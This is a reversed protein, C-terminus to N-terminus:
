KISKAPAKMKIDDEEDGAQKYYDAPFGNLQRWVEYWIPVEKLLVISQAGSGVRLATPWPKKDEEPKVLLRYMGNKSIFNDIAVVRGSFTGFSTNPWGSFVVAPWGDFQVRVDGGIEMLPLDIPRVYMEVALDFNSPMITVIETGAKIIEGIGSRVAKTIFGSQPAKIFYMGQREAYNGLLNNLKAVEAEASANSSVAEFIESRSKALKDAFSAKTNELELIASELEIRANFLDNQLSQTRGRANELVLRKSELDTLSLLGSRHLSDARTYRLEAIAQNKKVVELDISDNTVLLKLQRIKLKLQDLKIDRLSELAAVQSKFATVKQDYAEAGAIKAAIQESTRQLLKPDFYDADVESIYMLTDGKEVQQGETVFWEEIRGDIVSQVSQPRNEPRFSIVKGKARINQTWPLFLAGIFIMVLWFVVRRRYRGTTRSLVSTLTPFQDLKIEKTVSKRSINLMPLVKINLQLFSPRPTMTMNWKAKM